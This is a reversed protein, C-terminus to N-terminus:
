FKCYIYQTREGCIYGRQLPPGSGGSQDSRTGNWFGTIHLSEAKDFIPSINVYIMQSTKKGM